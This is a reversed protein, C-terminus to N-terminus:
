VVRQQGRRSGAVPPLTPCCRLSCAVSQEWATTCAPYTSGLPNKAKEEHQLHGDAETTCGDSRDTVPPSLRSRRPIAIATTCVCCHWVAPGPEVKLLEAWSCFLSFHRAQNIDQGTGCCGWGDPEGGSGQAVSVDRRPKEELQLFGFSALSNVSDHFIVHM